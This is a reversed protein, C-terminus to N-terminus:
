VHQWDCSNRFNCIYRCWFSDIKPPFDKEQEITHITDIAWQKTENFANIDFNNQILENNKIMNFILQTPYKNYEEYIPISYLYLQKLYDNLEKKSKFGNKTKHDIIILNDEKDKALLDIFGKFKYEGVNFNVEKEVSIPQYEFDAFNNFYDLGINYNKQTLDVWKNPPFPEYVEKMFNDEYYQSLEFINLEGKFYKELISHIFSGYLGFSNEEGNNEDMYQLKWAYKCGDFFSNIRSFSWTMSDVIFNDSM